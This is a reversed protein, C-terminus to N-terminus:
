RIVTLVEESYLQLIAELWSYNNKYVFQEYNLAPYYQQWETGAPIREFGFQAALSTLDIWYGSISQLPAAGGNEYTRPNGEFRATVDFSSTRLPMGMSGNEDSVKLYVRWFVEGHLEEKALLIYKSDYYAQSLGFSRGTYYWSSEENLDFPENLFIFDQGLMSLADWGAREIVEARLANYSSIIVQSFENFPTQIDNIHVLEHSKEKEFQDQIMALEWSTKQSESFGIMGSSFRNLGWTFGHYTSGIQSTFIPYSTPSMQNIHLAFSNGKNDILAVQTGDQNWQHACGTGISTILNTEIDFIEVTQGFDERCWSLGKGDPTWQVANFSGERNKTLNQFRDEGAKNIDLLWIDQKGDQNSIYAIQRNEADPHWVPAVDFRKNLTLQIPDISLDIPKLFLEITGNDVAHEYVIWQGDPSWNPAGDYFNDYTIQNTRNRVLDLVYIDWFGNRNSTFAVKKGDPSLAPHMDDWDGNTIKTEPMTEPQYAYLHINEQDEKAYIFLGAINEGDEPAPTATVIIVEPSDNNMQSLPTLTPQQASLTPSNEGIMLSRIKEHPVFALIALLLLLVLLLFFVFPTLQIARKKKQKTPRTDKQM